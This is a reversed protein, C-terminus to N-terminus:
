RERAGRWTPSAACGSSATRTTWTASSGLSTYAASSRAKSLTNTSSTSLLDRKGPQVTEQHLELITDPPIAPDVLVITATDAASAVSTVVWIFIVAVGCTGIIRM